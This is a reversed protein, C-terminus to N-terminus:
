FGLVTLVMVMKGVLLNTENQKLHCTPMDCIGCALVHCLFSHGQALCTKDGAEFSEVVVFFLTLM